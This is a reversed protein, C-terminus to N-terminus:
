FEQGEARAAKSLFALKCLVSKEEYILAEIMDSDATFNFMTRIDCLRSVLESYAEKMMELRDKKKLKKM